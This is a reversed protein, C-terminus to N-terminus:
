TISTDAKARPDHAFSTKYLDTHLLDMFIKSDSIAAKMIRLRLEIEEGQYKM